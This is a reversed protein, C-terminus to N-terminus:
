ANISGVRSKIERLLVFRTSFLECPHERCHIVEKGARGVACKKLINQMRRRQFASATAFNMAIRKESIIYKDVHYKRFSNQALPNYIFFEDFPTLNEDL